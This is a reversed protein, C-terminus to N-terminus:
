FRYSLGALPVFRSRLGPDDLKILVNGSLVLNAVLRVKLGIGLDDTNYSDRLAALDAAPVPPNGATGPINTTTQRVRPADFFHSGVFDVAVSLRRVIAADVGATYMVSDPLRLNGGSPSPFLASQSNWQYGFNVHPSLRAQHSYAVFPKFGYSGSGLFNKEDGSPLRVETGFALSDKERKLLTAKGAVIVDGIGSASGPVFQSFPVSGTDVNNKVFHERGSTSIGLSIREVPVVVSVDIRDTLGFSALAVYQDVRADIRNRTEGYITTTPDNPAPIQFVLPLGRGADLDPSHDLSIGDISDFQFRQYSFALFLKHKGITDGRQSLIPGLNDGSATTYIGLSKNFTLVVGSAASAIPLRALQTAFTSNFATVQPGFTRVSFPFQCALQTATPGCFAQAHGNLVCGGVVALVLLLHKLMENGKRLDRNRQWDVKGAADKCVSSFTSFSRLKFPAPGM